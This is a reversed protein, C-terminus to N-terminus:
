GNEGGAAGSGGDALQENEVGPRINNQWLSAREILRHDIYNYYGCNGCCIALHNNIFFVPTPRNSFMVAACGGCRPPSIPEKDELDSSTFAEGLAKDSSEAMAGGKGAVRM